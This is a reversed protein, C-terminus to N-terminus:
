GEWNKEFKKVIRNTAKDQAGTSTRLRAKGTSPNLSVPIDEFGHSVLAAELEEEFEFTM